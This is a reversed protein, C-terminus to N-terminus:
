RLERLKDITEECIEIVYDRNQFKGEEVIVRKLWPMYSELLWAFSLNRRPGPVMQLLAAKNPNWDGKVIQKLSEAMDPTMAVRGSATELDSTDVETWRPIDDSYWFSITEEEYEGDEDELPVALSQFGTCGLWLPDIVTPRRPELRVNMEYGHAPNRM